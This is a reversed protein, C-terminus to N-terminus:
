KKTQMLEQTVIGVELGETQKIREGIPVLKQIVMDIITGKAKGIFKLIPPSAEEKEMRRSSCTQREGRLFYALFPSRTIIEDIKM